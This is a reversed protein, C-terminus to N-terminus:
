LIIQRTFKGFILLKGYLIRNKAVLFPKLPLELFGLYANVKNM